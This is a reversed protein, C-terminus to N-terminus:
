KGKKYKSWDPIKIPTLMINKNMDWYTDYSLITRIFVEKGDIIEKKIQYIYDVGYCYNDTSFGKYKIRIGVYVYKKNDHPFDSINPTFKNPEVEQGPFLNRIYPYSGYTDVYWQAIDFLRDEGDNAIKVETEIENATFKGVNEYKIVAGAYFNKADDYGAAPILDVYLYPRNELVSAEVQQKLTKIQTELQSQQTNVQSQFNKNSIYFIFVTFLLAALAMVVTQEVKLLIAGLLIVIGVILSSWFINLKIGIGVICIAIIIWWLIASASQKCNQPVEERLKRLFRGMMDLVKRM